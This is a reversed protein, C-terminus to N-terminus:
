KNRFQGWIFSLPGWQDSALCVLVQALTSGSWLRWITDVTGTSYYFQRVSYDLMNSTPLHKVGSYRSTSRNTNVLAELIQQWIAEVDHLHWLHQCEDIIRINAAFNDGYWTLAM